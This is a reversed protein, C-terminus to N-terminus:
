KGICFYFFWVIVMLFMLYDHLNDGIWSRSFSYFFFCEIILYTVAMQVRIVRGMKGRYSVMAKAEMSDMLQGNCVIKDVKPLNISRRQAVQKRTSFLYMTFKNEFHDAVSSDTLLCPCLIAFMTFALGMMIDCMDWIESPWILHFFMRPGQIKGDITYPFGGDEPSYFQVACDIFLVTNLATPIFYHPNLNELFYRRTQSNEEKKRGKTRNNALLVCNPSRKGYSPGDKVVDLDNFLVMYHCTLLQGVKSLLNKIMSSLSTAM